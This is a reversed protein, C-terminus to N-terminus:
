NLLLKACPRCTPKSPSKVINPPPPPHFLYSSMTFATLLLHLFYIILFNMVQHSQAKIRKEKHFLITAQLYCDKEM